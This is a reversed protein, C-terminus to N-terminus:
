SIRDFGIRARDDVLPLGGTRQNTERALPMKAIEALSLRAPQAPM